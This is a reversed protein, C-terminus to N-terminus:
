DSAVRVGGFVGLGPRLFGTPNQYHENFLNDARAFATVNNNVKYNAAVNVVTYGPANLRPISFDRSVDIWGSVRVVTASLLLAETANWDVTVSGKHQPRRALELGTTADVAKTYTYDGRVRLTPLITAAAFSEVGETRASNVNDLMSCPGFANGCSPGSFTLTQILDKIDNHFYTAGFRLRDNFLPQEFGVDYGSSTEPRLNPNAFFFFTPFSVYLQQLTPAKFGTGYSAKLKTETVPLIVAPAIRWTTAAGFQDNDDHRINATLFVRKAFESQIEAFAGTNGNKAAVTDTQISEASREAGVVLVQGPALEAVSRWDVKKQDGNNGFNGNFPDVTFNSLSSYNAGFYNKWRGDFVSWVAEGRTRFTESQSNSQRSAPAFVGNPPNVNPYYQDGTFDLNTKTYRAVWNLSFNESLDAGLKTSLTKNDYADNIRAVGPPLLELPTVPTSDSRFHAINFAYNFRDTAGTLGAAQNFTGFSGGEVTTTLKPKGSGKKTTISIVGGIADSGYLGSQPGRLVEIREIDATLLQSFDFSHDTTTPDNVEIGDIIVKTHGPNTGRMFVNTLGGPGGAQVVNLGPVTSLADPVTRLQQQELQEATIVTVSSATGAIPNPVLTPSTVLTEPLATAPAGQARAAPAWFVAAFSVLCTSLLFSNRARRAACSRQFM